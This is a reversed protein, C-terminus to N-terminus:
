SPPILADLGCKKLIDKDIEYGKRMSRKILKKAKKINDKDDYNVLSAGFYYCYEPNKKYAKEIEEFIAIATAYDKKKFSIKAQVFQALDSTAGNIQQLSVACKQASDLLNMRILAETMYNLWMSEQPEVKFQEKFYTTSKEYEKMDMYLLGKMKRAWTNSPNIQLSKDVAIMASDFEKFDRFCYALLDYADCLYNDHKLAEKYHLIATAFNGDMYQIGSKMWKKASENTTPCVFNKKISQYPLKVPVFIQASLGSFVM